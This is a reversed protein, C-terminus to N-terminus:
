CSQNNSSTDRIALATSSREVLADWRGGDRSTFCVNGGDRSDVTGCTNSVNKTKLTGPTWIRVDRHRGRSGKNTSGTHGVGSARGVLEVSTSQASRRRWGAEIISVEARAMSSTDVVGTNTDRARIASDETSRSTVLTGWDRGWRAGGEIGRVTGGTQSGSRSHAKSTSPARVCCHWEVLEGMSGTNFIIDTSVQGEIGTDWRGVENGWLARVVTSSITDTNISGEASPDVVLRVVDPSSVARFWISMALFFDDVRTILIDQILGEVSILTVETSANISL